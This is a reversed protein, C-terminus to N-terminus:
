MREKGLLGETCGIRETELDEEEAKCRNRLHNPGWVPM